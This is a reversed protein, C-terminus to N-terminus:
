RNSTWDEDNACRSNEALTSSSSLESIDHEKKQRHAQLRRMIEAREAESYDRWRAIEELSRGCGVCEQHANLKCIHVCPSLIPDTM